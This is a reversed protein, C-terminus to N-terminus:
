RREREMDSEVEPEPAADWIDALDQSAFMIRCNASMRELQEVRQPSLKVQLERKHTM